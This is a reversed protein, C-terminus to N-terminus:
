RKKTRGTPVNFSTSWGSWEVAVSKFKGGCSSCVIKHTSWIKKCSKCKTGPKWETMSM